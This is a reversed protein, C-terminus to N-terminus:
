TKRAATGRRLNEISLRGPGTVALLLALGCMIVSHHLPPGGGGFGFNMAVAISLLVGATVLAAARHFLGLILLVGPILELWPLAYGYPTAIASPLWDPTTEAYRGHVFKGVGGRVKGFGVWAMYSGLLVRNLLIALNLWLDKM